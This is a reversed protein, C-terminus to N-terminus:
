ASGDLPNPKLSNNPALEAAGWKELLSNAEATPLLDLSHLHWVLHIGLMQLEGHELGDRAQTAASITQERPNSESVDYLWPEVTANAAEACTKVASIAYRESAFFRIRAGTDVIESGLMTVGPMLSVLSCVTQLTELSGAMTTNAGLAQELRNKSASISRIKM